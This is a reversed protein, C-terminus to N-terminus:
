KRESVLVNKKRSKRLRKLAQGIGRQSCGFRKAREYQFADPYREVDQALRKMNIKVAPKNRNKCPELRKIWRAVSSKSVHFRLAVQEISLNEKEQTELVKRRFDISYTM